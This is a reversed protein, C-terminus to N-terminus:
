SHRLFAKLVKTENNSVQQNVKFLLLSEEFCAAEFYAQKGSSEYIGGM